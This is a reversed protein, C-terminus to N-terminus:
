NCKITYYHTNDIDQSGEDECDVRESSVERFNLHNNAVYIEYTTKTCGCDNMDEPSECSSAIFILTIIALLVFSQKLRKM